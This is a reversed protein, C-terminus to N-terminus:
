WPKLRRACIVGPQLIGLAFALMIVSPWGWGMRRALERILLAPAGYLAGFVVAASLVEAPRGTIDDYAALLEAGIASLLLLGVIQGGRARRERRAVPLPRRRPRHGSTKPRM